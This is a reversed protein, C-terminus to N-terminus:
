GCNSLNDAATCAGFGDAGASAKTTVPEIDLSVLQLEDGRLLEADTAGCRSCEFWKDEVAFKLHCRRCQAVAEVLEIRLRAGALASDRIAAEFCFELTTLEVLRLTGLRLYATKLRTQPHERLEQRIVRVLEEAISLEHM